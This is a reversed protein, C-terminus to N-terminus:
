HVRNDPPVIQLAPRDGLLPRRRGTGVLGIRVERGDRGPGRRRILFFQCGDGLTEDGVARM